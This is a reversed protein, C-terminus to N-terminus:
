KRMITLLIDLLRFIIGSFPISEEAVGRVNKLGERTLAGTLIVTFLYVAFFIVGLVILEAWGHLTILQSCGWTVAAAVLASVYIRASSSWDVTFGLEKKVWWLSMINSIRPSLIIILFYGFIGYLPIFYLGLPVSIVLTAISMIFFYRTGGVSVILNYINFDGIGSFIYLLLYLQLFLTSYPFINGYIVEIVPAALSILGVAIPLTILTTYKVSSQFINKLSPDERNIKSMLPFLVNSLPTTIVSLLVGFKSAASYNGLVDASVNLIQLSNLLSSQGGSILSSIFLPFGFIILMRLAQFSFFPSDSDRLHIVRDLLIMGLLGVVIVSSADGIISGLPGLGLYVLGISVAGRLISWLVQVTSSLPMKEYGLLIAQVVSVMGQGFISFSAVRLLQLLSPDEFKFFAAIFGSAAWIALSIVLGTSANFILGTRLMVRLEKERNEVRYQATYKTLSTTIGWNQFLSGIGVPVMVITIAGVGSPGLMRNVLIVTVASIVTMIAQGIILVVGGRASVKLQDGMDGSLDSM